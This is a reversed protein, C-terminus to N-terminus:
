RGEPTRRPRALLGQGSRMAGTWRLYKALRSRERWLFGWFATADISDAAQGSFTEIRWRLYPSRWPCSRYGRTAQLLFRWIEVAARVSM